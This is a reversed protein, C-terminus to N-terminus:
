PLKLLVNGVADGYGYVPDGPAAAVLRANAFDVTVPDGATMNATGSLTRPVIGETAVLCRASAAAGETAIGLVFSTPLAADGGSSPRAFYLYGAISQSLDVVVVQGPAVAQTVVVVVGRYPVRLHSLVRQSLVRAVNNIWTWALAGFEAGDRGGYLEDLEDNQLTSDPYSM